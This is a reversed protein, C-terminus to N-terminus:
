ADSGLTDLTIEHPAEIPFVARVVNPVEERSATLEDLLRVGNGILFKLSRIVGKFYVNTWVLLFVEVSAFVAFVDVAVHVGNVGTKLEAPTVFFENNCKLVSLVDIFTVAFM